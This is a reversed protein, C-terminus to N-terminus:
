SLNVRDWLSMKVVLLGLGQHNSMVAIGGLILFVSHITKFAEDLEVGISHLEIGEKCLVLLKNNNVIVVCHYTLLLSPTKTLFYM